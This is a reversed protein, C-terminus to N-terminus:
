DSGHIFAASSGSPILSSSANKVGEYCRSSPAQMLLLCLRWSRLNARADTSSISSLAVRLAVAQEFFCGGRWSLTAMLYNQSAAIFDGLALVSKVRDGRVRGHVTGVHFGVCVRLPLVREGEPCRCGQILRVTVNKAYLSTPPPARVRPSDGERTASARQLQKSAKPLHIRLAALEELVFTLSQSQQREGRRSKLGRLCAASM